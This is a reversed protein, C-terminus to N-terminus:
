SHLMLGARLRRSRRFSPPLQTLYQSDSGGAEGHGVVRQGTPQDGFDPTENDGNLFEYRRFLLYSARVSLWVSSFLRVGAFPGIDGQSFALNSFCRDPDAQREDFPTLPLDDAQGQCPWGQQVRDSTLAYSQGTIQTSLGLELRDGLQWRLAIVQPVLGSLRLSDTIRWDIRLAPLPLLAGFQYNAGVGIGLTFRDSFAYSVMAVGAMRFHDGDVNAFDGAFAPRSRFSSAGLTM